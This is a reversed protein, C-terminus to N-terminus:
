VVSRLSVPLKMLAAELTMRTVPDRATTDVLEVEDGSTENARRDRQWRSIALHATLRRIWGGLQGREEYRRLAEPLGVFVDHVVDEADAQSQVVRLAVALMEHAHRRDVAAVAQTDARAVDSALQADSLDRTQDNPQPLAM